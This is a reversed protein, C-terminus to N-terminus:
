CEKKDGKKIFSMFRRKQETFLAVLRRKQEPFKRSVYPASIVAVVIVASFANIWEMPLKLQMAGQYALRFLIAGVVAGIAKVTIGGKRFITGGILLSALAMTLFGSGITITASKMKQALLCGALATFSNSICLGVTTTFAPNISSSRVMDPNNGTARIALGMKSRLFLSLFVIVILVAAFGVITVALNPIM